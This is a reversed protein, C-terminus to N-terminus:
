QHRRDDQAVATGVAFGEAIHHRHDAHALQQSLVQRFSTAVVQRYADEIQGGAILMFHKVFRWATRGVAFQRSGPFQPDGVVVILDVDLGALGEQPGVMGRYAAQHDKAAQEAQQETRQKIHQHALTLPRQFHDLLASPLQTVALLFQATSVALQTAHQVSRGLHRDDGGIQATDDAGEIGPRLLHEAVGAEAHHPM